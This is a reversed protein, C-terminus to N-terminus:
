LQERKSSLRQPSIQGNLISHASSLMRAPSRQIVPPGNAEENIAGPAQGAQAPHWNPKHIFAAHSTGLRGTWVPASPQDHRM